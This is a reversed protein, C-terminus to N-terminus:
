DLSDEISNTHRACAEDKKDESSITLNMNLKRGEKLLGKPKSSHLQKIFKTLSDFMLKLTIIILAIGVLIEM